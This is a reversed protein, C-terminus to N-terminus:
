QPIFINRITFVHCMSLCLPKALCEVVCWEHKTKERVRLIYMYTCVASSLLELTEVVSLLLLFLALSLSFIVLLCLVMWLVCCLAVGSENETPNAYYMCPSYMVKRVDMHSIYARTDM